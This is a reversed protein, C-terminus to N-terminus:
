KQHVYEPEDMFTKTVPLSKARTKRVRRTRTDRPYNKISACECDGGTRDSPDSKLAFGALPGEGNYILSAIEEHLKEEIQEITLTPGAVPRGRVDPELEFHLETAKSVRQTERFYLELFDLWSKNTGKGNQSVARNSLEPHPDLHIKYGAYQQLIHSDESPRSWPFYVSLGRAYQYAPGAFDSAVIVRDREDKRAPELKELLVLCAKEIAQLRATVLNVTKLSKCKEVICSCFDYLDTYKEEFFSQAKWHALLVVFTSVADCRKTAPDPAFANVLATSLKEIPERLTHVATLDCLTLQYSYGALLFDASNHLCYYFIDSIMDRIDARDGRRELENFIRILIQRYPWSGVFTPGESALMYNATNQLEYAVELSSVSCSHFSVLEFTAGHEQIKDKFDALVAGMETLTISHREAHEDYMFMDNGVVVGHGLCFLMYHRAPYRQYCFNLFTELSTYPDPEYRRGNGNVRRSNGNLNPAKPPNYELDHKSKMVKKLVDRVFQDDEGKEDRWLKDEILNRVFSDNGDFGINSSYPQKLKNVLNVDFIHTPTGETFPDFQAIVNVQHHFGADKLAKLQSVISIALPNDSAMYFMLTWEKTQCM